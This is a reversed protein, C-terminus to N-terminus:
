ALVTGPLMCYIICVHCFVIKNCVWLLVGVCFCAYVCEACVTMEKVKGSCFM